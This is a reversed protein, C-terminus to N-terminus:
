KMGHRLALIAAQTRDEVELKALLSSVHNRVTGLSLSLSMAIAANNNGRAILQLIEIERESLRSLV